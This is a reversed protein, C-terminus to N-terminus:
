LSNKLTKARVPLKRLIPRVQRGDAPANACATGVRAAPTKDLRTRRLLDSIWAVSTGMRESPGLRSTDALQVRTIEIEGRDVESARSLLSPYTSGGSTRMTTTTTTTTTTLGPRTPARSARPRRWRYGIARWDRYGIARRSACNALTHHCPPRRTRRSSMIATPRDVAETSRIVDVKVGAEAEEVDVGADAEM